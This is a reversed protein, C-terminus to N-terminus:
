PSPMGSEQRRRQNPVVLLRSETALASASPVPMFLQCFYMAPSSGVSGAELNTAPSSWDMACLWCSLTMSQGLTLPFCYTM